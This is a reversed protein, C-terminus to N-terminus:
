WVYKLADEDGYVDQYPNHKPPIEEITLLMGQQAEAWRRKLAITEHVVEWVDGTLESMLYRKEGKSDIYYLRYKM